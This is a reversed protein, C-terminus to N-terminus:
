RARGAKQLKPLVDRRVRKSERLTREIRRSEERARELAERDADLQERRDAPQTTMNM